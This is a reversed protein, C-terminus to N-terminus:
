VNSLNRRQSSESEIDEQKMDYHQRARNASQHFYPRDNHATTASCEGSFCYVQVM